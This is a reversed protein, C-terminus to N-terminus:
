TEDKAEENYFVQYYKRVCDDCYMNWVGPLTKYRKVESINKKKGCRNCYIKSM